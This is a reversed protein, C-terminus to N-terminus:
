LKPMGPCWPTGAKGGLENFWHGLHNRAYCSYGGQGLARQVCEYSREYDRNNQTEIINTGPIKDAIEDKVYLRLFPGIGDCLVLAAKDSPSSGLAKLTSIRVTASEEETILRKKLCKIASLRKSGEFSRVAVDRVREDPDEMMLECVMADTKATRNKVAADLAAARVGGDDDELAVKTLHAVTTKDSRGKLARAAGARVEAVEDNQLREILTGVCGSCPRLSEAAYRRVSPDPDSGALKELSGYASRADIGGLVRVLIPRRESEIQVDDLAPTLCAALDERHTGALGEAVAADFEHLEADYLAECICKTAVSIHPYEALKGSTYTRLSDDDRMTLGVCASGYAGRALFTDVEASTEVFRPAMECSALSAILAAVAVLHRM